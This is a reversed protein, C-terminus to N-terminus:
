LEELRGTTMMEKVLLTVGWSRHCNNHRPILSSYVTPMAHPGIFVSILELLLTVRGRSYIPDGIWTYCNNSTTDIQLVQGACNVAYIYGDGALAGNGCDFRRDAVEGVTSTTDPNSPDFKIIRTANHPIGCVYDDSGVVTGRYKLEGELDGGVSSPSDNDPNLRMIRHANCPMYYINNDAALAGSAWLDGVAEPLEVNDLTEVTGDITNINLIHKADYPACYISGTNARVGCLWKFEGEGLDPGIETLSKDLPNFKVVRRASSPIGYFFGDGGDVFDSWQEDGQIEDGILTTLSSEAM